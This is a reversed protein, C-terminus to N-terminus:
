NRSLEHGVQSAREQLSQLLSISRTIVELMELVAGIVEFTATLQMHHAFTPLKKLEV